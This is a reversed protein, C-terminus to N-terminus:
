LPETRMAVDNLENLNEVIFWCAPKSKDELNHVHIQILGNFSPRVIQGFSTHLRVYILQKFSDLMHMAVAYKV